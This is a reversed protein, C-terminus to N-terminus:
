YPPGSHFAAPPKDVIVRIELHPLSNELLLERFKPFNVRDILYLRRNHRQMIARFAAADRALAQRVLAEDDLPGSVEPTKYV